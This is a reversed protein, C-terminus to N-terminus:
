KADKENELILISILANGARRYHDYAHFVEAGWIGEGVENALVDGETGLEFM